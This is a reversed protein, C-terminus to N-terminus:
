DLVQKYAADGIIDKLTRLAEKSNIHYESM